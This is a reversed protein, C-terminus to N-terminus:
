AARWLIIFAATRVAIDLMQQSHRRPAPVYGRTGAGAAVESVDMM